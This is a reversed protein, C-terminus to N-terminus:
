PHCGAAAAQQQLGALSSGCVVAMRARAAEPLGQTPLSWINVTEDGLSLRTELPMGECALVATVAAIFQDCEAINTHLTGLRTTLGAISDRPAFVAFLANRQREDLREACPKLDDARMNAFCEIASASWGDDTCRARMPALVSEDPARLERTAQELGEAADGCTKAAPHTLPEVPVPKPPPASACATVLLVALRM